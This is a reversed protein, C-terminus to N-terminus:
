RPDPASDKAPIRDALEDIMATLVEFPEPMGAQMYPDTAELNSEQTWERLLKKAANSLHRTPMENLTVFASRSASWYKAESEAM